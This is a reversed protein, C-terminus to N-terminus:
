YNSMKNNLDDITFPCYVTYRVKDSINMTVEHPLNFNQHELVVFQEYNPIIEIVGNETFIKLLSGDNHTRGENLFFLTTYIRENNEGTDVHKRIFSGKPYVNIGGLLTDLYDNKLIKNFDKELFGGYTKKILDFLRTNIFNTNAIHLFFNFYDGVSLNYKQNLNDMFVFDDYNFKGSTKMKNYRSVDEKLMKSIVNSGLCLFDLSSEIKDLEVNFKQVLSFYEKAENESLFDTIDLIKYGNTM